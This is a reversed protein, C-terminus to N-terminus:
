LPHLDQSRKTGLHYCYVDNIFSENVNKINKYPRAHILLSLHYSTWGSVAFEWTDPTIKVIPEFKLFFLRKKHEDGMNLPIKHMTAAKLELIEIYPEDPQGVYRVEYMDVPCIVPM